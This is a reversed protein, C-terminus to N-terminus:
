MLEAARPNLQDELYWVLEIITECKGCEISQAQIPWPNEILNECEPCEIQKIYLVM